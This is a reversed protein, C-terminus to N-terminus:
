NKKQLLSIIENVNTCTEGDLIEFIYNQIFEWVSHSEKQYNLNFVYHIKFICSLAKVFSDFSYLINDYIAQISTIESYDSNSVILICPQMCMNYQSYKDRRRSIAENYGSANDVRIIFSNQSDAISFKWNKNTLKNRIHGGPPLLAHLLCSFVIDRQNGPPLLHLQELQKRNYKNKILKQMVPLLEEQFTKWKEIFILDKGPFKSDFDIDIQKLNKQM